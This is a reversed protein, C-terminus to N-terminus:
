HATRVGSTLLDLLCFCTVLVVLAAFVKAFINAKPFLEICRFIVYFGIIFGIDPIM